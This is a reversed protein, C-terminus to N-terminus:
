PAPAVVLGQSRMIAIGALFADWPPIGDAAPADRALGAAVVGVTRGGACLHMMLGASESLQVVEVDGDDRTRLALDVPGTAM